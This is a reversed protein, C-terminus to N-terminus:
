AIEDDVVGNKHEKSEHLWSKILPVMFGGLLIQTPHYILLPISIFPLIMDGAYIIKLIPVGLTLSKHTSCFMLAVIDEKNYGLQFRNTVSFILYLLGAQMGFIIVAAILLDTPKVGTVDSSFTDCFTTYIIMLLMFSGVQGLPPKERELWDKIYIRALQGLMLPIVVTVTLTQVINIVPVGGSVGVNALLLLPTIFIGLFSGLASNFIAGAENGGIAKTIIVASSVPPPMCSVVQVGRILYENFEVLALLKVFLSIIAPIFAFTFMQIFLHLRYHFFAAKLDESRLSLGSNFFIVSVAIYKITIQPYLPGGKKGIWPAIKAFAIFLVIGYLFWNKRANELIGM